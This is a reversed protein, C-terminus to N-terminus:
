YWVGKIDKAEESQKTTNHCQSCLLQLNTEDWFKREDGRHPDIHDVASEGKGVCLRKCLKCTYRDRLRIADRLTRWRPTNYWGRYQHELARRKNREQENGPTYGLTPAITSLSPKISTLKAM